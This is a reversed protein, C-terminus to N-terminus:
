VGGGSFPSHPLPVTVGGGGYYLIPPRFHFQVIETFHFSMAYFPVIFLFQFSFFQFLILIQFFKFCYLNFYNKLLKQDGPPGNGAQLGGGRGSRCDPFLDRLGVADM